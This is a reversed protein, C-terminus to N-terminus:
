KRSMDWAKRWYKRLREPNSRDFHLSYSTEEGTAYDTTEFGSSVWFDNEGNSLPYSSTELYERMEGVLERFTYEVNEFEFGSDAFDGDEASEPTITQYTKSISFM